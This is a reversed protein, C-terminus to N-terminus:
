AMVWIGAYSGSPVFTVLRDGARGILLLRRAASRTRRWALRLATPINRRLWRVTEMPSQESVRRIYYRMGRGPLHRRCAPGYTDLLVVRDVEVGRAELVKALAFATLGGYSLGVLVLPKQPPMGCLRDAYVEVLRAVDGPLSPDQRGLPRCQLGWVDTDVPLHRIVKVFQLTDGQLPALYILRAGPGPRLHQLIPDPANELDDLRAALEAITACELLLTAPCPRDFAAEIELVVQMAGLSDGGLDTFADHRGIPQVLLTRQWIQALTTETGPLPADCCTDPVANRTTLVPLSARDVKGNPRVPLYALPLFFQPIAHAPLVRALRERFARRDCAAGDAMVVHAILREPSIDSAVDHFHSVTVAAQLVPLTRCIADEIEAPSLRFGRLKLMGDRRGTVFLLGDNGVYGFDGTVFGANGTKDTPLFHRRTLEPAGLYGHVVGPGRIHLVPTSEGHSDTGADAGDVALSQAIHYGPNVFGAPIGRDDPRFTKSLFCQSANGFETASYTLRLMCGDPAHDRFAEVDEPRCPEGEFSLIRLTGLADRLNPGGVAHLISRFATPTTKLFTPCTRRLWAVLPLAGATQLPFIHLSAGSLLTWLAAARGGAFSLPDFLVVREQRTIACSRQFGDAGQLATRHSREVAKPLGTTGSTFNVGIPDNPRLSPCAGLRPAHIKEMMEVDSGIWLANPWSHRRRAQANSIVVDPRFINLQHCLYDPPNSASLNTSVGGAMAAAFISVISEINDDLLIAVRARDPGVERLSAALAASRGHLTDFDIARDHDVIAVEPGCAAVVRAFRDPVTEFRPDGRFSDLADDGLHHQPYTAFIGPFGGKRQMDM